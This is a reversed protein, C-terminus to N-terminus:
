DAGPRQEGIRAHRLVAPAAVRIVRRAVDAAKRGALSRSSRLRDATHFTDARRAGLCAALGCSGGFGFSLVIAWDASGRNGPAFYGLHAGPGRALMRATYRCPTM